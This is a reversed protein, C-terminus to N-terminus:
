DLMQQVVFIGPLEDGGVAVFGSSALVYDFFDGGVEHAPTCVGSVDLGPVVPDSTPMLGMQVRRASQLEGLIRAKEVLLM